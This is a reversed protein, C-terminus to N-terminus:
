LYRDGEGRLAHISIKDKNNIVDSIAKDGEGRLAHISIDILVNFCSNGRTARGASPTSQFACITTQFIRPIHRGGRPPRPNFYDVSGHYKLAPVDGEGRLAHISISPPVAHDRGM